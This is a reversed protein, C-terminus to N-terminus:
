GVITNRRGVECTRGFTRIGGVIDRSAYSKTGTVLGDRNGGPIRFCFFPCRNGARGNLDRNGM